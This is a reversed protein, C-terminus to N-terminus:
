EPFLVTVGKSGKPAHAIYKEGNLVIGACDLAILPDISSQFLREPFLM